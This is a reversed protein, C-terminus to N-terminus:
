GRGAVKGKGTALIEEYVREMTCAVADWTFRQQVTVRGQEGMRDALEPDGLVRALAAALQEPEGEAVIGAGAERVTSALGVEPTVVVPRGAAMAELVVIGFNESYSLLALLRAHRLLAEKDVGQVEGAYIVREGIGRSAALEELVRRYGEEDNGAIVLNVGELLALASLLRDLGKKWNIRGMFLIFPAGGCLERILPSPEGAAAESEGFDIGNPVLHFPPLRYGFKEADEIELPSTVHIGAAQELCSRGVLALWASKLLTSKRGVLEKVLMGRPAFLYPIHAERCSRAAAVPPWNFLSHLHALDFRPLEAKLAAGLPPSWYLRRLRHSPYYWIAVGDLMVPVGLPVPSDHPGDVNTTFVHVEHGRRALGACLGHVSRIPGGYRWAPIYTPTVQLIRLRDRM